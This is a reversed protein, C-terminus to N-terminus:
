KKYRPNVKKSLTEGTYFFALLTLVIMTSPFFVMWYEGALLRSKGEYLLSGWSISPSQIGIQLYSLTVEIIVAFAMCAAINNILSPKCNNWIIDRWLIISNSFGIEKSSEVFESEIFSKVTSRINNLVSPLVVLGVACMIIYINFRSIVAALFILILAPVSEIVIGFGVLTKTIFNDYYGSLGGMIMGGLVGVVCAILGPILSWRAGAIILTHLSRGRNDTGM